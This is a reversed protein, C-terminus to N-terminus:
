SCVSKLEAIESAVVKCDVVRGAPVIALELVVEGLERTRGSLVAAPVSRTGDM